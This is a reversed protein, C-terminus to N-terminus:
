ARSAGVYLLRELGGGTHTDIEAHVIWHARASRFIGLM